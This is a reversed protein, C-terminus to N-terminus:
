HANKDMFVNGTKEVGEVYSMLSLTPLLAYSGSQGPVGVSVCEKSGLMM